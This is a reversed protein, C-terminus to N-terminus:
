FDIGFSLYLGGFGIDYITQEEATAGPSDTSYLLNLLLANFFHHYDYGVAFHMPRRLCWTLFAEIRLDVGPICITTKPYDNILQIPFEPDINSVHAKYSRHGLAGVGNLEVKIGAWRFFNCTAGFGAEFGVGDFGSQDTMFLPGVLASLVDLRDNEKLHIWDIGGFGYINGWRNNNIYLGARGRFRQYENKVRLNIEPYPGFAFFNFITVAANDANANVTQDFFTYEMDFFWAPALVYSVKARWGWEYRPKATRYHFTDIGTDIGSVDAAYVRDDRSTKWYLAAAEIELPYCRQACFAPTPFEACTEARLGVRDAFLGGILWLISVVFFILRWM